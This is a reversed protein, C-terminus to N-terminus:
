EKKGEQESNHIFKVENIGLAILGYLLSIIVGVVTYDLNKIGLMGSIIIMIVFVLFWNNM